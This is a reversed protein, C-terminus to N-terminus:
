LNRYINRHMKEMDKLFSNASVPIGDPLDTVLVAVPERELHLMQTLKKQM